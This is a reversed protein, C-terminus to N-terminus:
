IELGNTKMATYDLMHIYILSKLNEQQYANPKNATNKPEICQLYFKKIGM